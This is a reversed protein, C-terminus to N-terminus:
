CNGAEHRKRNGRFNASKSQRPGRFDSMATSDQPAPWNSHLGKRENWVLLEMWATFMSSISDLHYGGSEHTEIESNEAKSAVKRERRVSWVSIRASRCWIMTRFRETGLQGLSRGQSRNSQIQSERRQGSHREARMMTLGSVTMEHCRLPNGMSQVQFHRCPLAPLGPIGLSTRSRMWVMRQSLCM